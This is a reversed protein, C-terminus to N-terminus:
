SRGLRRQGARRAAGLSSELRRTVAPWRFEADVYALGAAGLRRRAVPDDALLEIAAELELAGDFPIGGGSRMVHGNLVDCRRDCVVPVGASWAEIAVISFSELRSPQVLAIAGAIAAAKTPEDVVGTTVVDPHRAVPDGGSGVLVLRLPRPLRAKMSCFRDVLQPVGKHSDIRGVYLLYPDVGLGHRRRFGAVDAVATPVDVGAGVVDGPLPRGLRETVLRREEIANYVLRDALLLPPEVVATWFPPEDHATPALSTATRRRATPLGAVTPHYLYSIFLVVDFASAEIDLWPELDVLEPGQAALWERQQGLDLAEGARLRRDLEYFRATRQRAALFRHVTVGDDDFTGAPLDNRWTVYDVACSTAVHVEHGSRVLRRAWARALSEAGGVVDPGYRQVVVALKM